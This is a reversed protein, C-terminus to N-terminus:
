PRSFIVQKNQLVTQSSGSEAFMAVETVCGVYRMLLFQDAMNVGIQRRM